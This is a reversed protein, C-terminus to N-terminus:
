VTTIEVIDGLGLGLTEKASGDRIAIELEGDSGLLAVTEGPSAEGYTRVYRLSRGDPLTVHLQTDSGLDELDARNACTILNGFRDAVTIVARLGGTFPVPRALTLPVPTIPTGLTVLRLMGAALAAATPALIDRGHFTASRERALYRHEGIRWARIPGGVAVLAPMLLGNDPGVFLHGGAVAVIDARETGVGPDIVALHVTGPPFRPCSARLVRAASVVGYPPLDHAIDVLSLRSAVTLLAGKMAGLYGDNTGFDSTLTVIGNPEFSM